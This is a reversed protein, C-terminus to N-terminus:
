KRTHLLAVTSVLILAAFLLTVMVSVETEISFFRPLDPVLTVLVMWGLAFLVLILTLGTLYELLTGLVSAKGQPSM